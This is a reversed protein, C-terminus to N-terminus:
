STSQHECKEVACSCVKAIPKTRAVSKIVLGLMVAALVSENGNRTRAIEVLRSEILATDGNVVSQVILNLEHVDMGLDPNLVRSLHSQEVM